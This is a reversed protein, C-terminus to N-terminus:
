KATVHMVRGTKSGSKCSTWYVDSGHIAVACGPTPGKAQPSPTGEIAGAYVEGTTPTVWAIGTGITAVGCPPSMSNFSKVFAGNSYVSVRNDTRSTAVVFQNSGALACPEAIDFHTQMSTDVASAIHLKKTSKEMWYIDGSQAAPGVPMQKVAIGLDSGGVFTTRFLEPNEPDSMNFFYLFAGDTSLACSDGLNEAVTVSLAIQMFDARRVTGGRTRWFVMGPTLAIGCPRDEAKAVVLRSGDMKSIRIIEGSDENTWFIHTLNVAIASPNPQNCAIIEETGVPACSDAGGTGDSGGSGGAGATTVGDTVVEYSPYFCGGLAFAGAAMAAFLIGCDGFTGRAM